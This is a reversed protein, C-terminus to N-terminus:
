CEERELPMTMCRPGGRARSLEHGAFVVATPGGARLDSTELAQLDTLVRWGRRSLEEATKRNRQYFFVVGPAVAFANAGDTWEEREQDILDRGGCPIMELEMGRDALAFLLSPELTFTLEDGERRLPRTEGDVELSQPRAKAPLAVRQSGGRSSRIELMLSAKSMRAGPTVSLQAHDITISQGEAPPPRTVAIAAQEGPWPALEPQYRGDGVRSLPTVGSLACRWMPGCHLTWRESWPKGEAAHLAIRERQELSSTWSVVTDDRAFPAHLVGESAELASETISEGPLLPVRVRLPTGAPSIRRLTSRV